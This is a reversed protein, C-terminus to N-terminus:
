GVAGRRARKESRLVSEFDILKHTPHTLHIRVCETSWTAPVFKMKDSRNVSLFAKVSSWNLSSASLYWYILDALGLCGSSDIRRKRNRNQLTLLFPFFSVLYPTFRLLFYIVSFSITALVATWVDTPVPTHRCDNQGEACGKLKTRLLNVSLTINFGFTVGPSVPQNNLVAADVAFNTFHGVDWQPTEPKNGLWDLHSRHHVLHCQVIKLDSLGTTNLLWYFIRLTDLFYLYM